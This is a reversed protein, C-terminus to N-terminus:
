RPFPAPWPAGDVKDTSWFVPFTNNPTREMSVLAESQKYGFRYDVAVGLRAEIQVMLEKAVAPDEFAEADTIGKSRITDCYIPAQAKVRNWGDRQAVLCVVAVQDGAARFEQRYAQLAEDATDGTGIFDDCFIIQCSSRTGFKGTLERPDNAAQVSKNALVTAEARSAMAHYAVAQGSKAKGYDKPALLPVFLVEASDGFADPPISSLARHLSALYGGLPCYLFDATLQLLM